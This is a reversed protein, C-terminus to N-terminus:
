ESTDRFGRVDFNHIWTASFTGGPRQTPPSLVQARRGTELPLGSGAVTGGLKCCFRFGESAELNERVTLM